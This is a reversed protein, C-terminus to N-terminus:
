WTSSGTADPTRAFCHLRPAVHKDPFGEILFDSLQPRSFYCNIHRQLKDIDLRTSLNTFGSIDVFLLAADCYWAAPLEGGTNANCSALRWHALAPSFPLINEMRKQKLSSGQSNARKIKPAAPEGEQAATTNSALPPQHKSSFSLRARKRQKTAALWWRRLLYWGLLVAVSSSLLLRPRM